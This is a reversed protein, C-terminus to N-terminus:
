CIIVSLFEHNIKEAGARYYNNQRLYTKGFVYLFQTKSSLALM